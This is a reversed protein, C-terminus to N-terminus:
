EVLLVGKYMQMQCHFPYEGKALAPLSIVVSKDMPLEESIDLDPFLLSASCGAKDQRLFTLQTATNAPVTIRAPSYVGDKVVIANTAQHTTAKPKYLWFWWVILAILAVCFLNILLM